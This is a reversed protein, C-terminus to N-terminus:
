FLFPVDRMSQLSVCFVFCVRVFIDLDITKRKARKRKKKRMMKM